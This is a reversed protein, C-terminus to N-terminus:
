WSVRETAPESQPPTDALSDHARASMATVIRAAIISILYTSALSALLGLYDLELKVLPGFLLLPLFLLRPDTQPDGARGDVMKVIGGLIMMGVIVVSLGGHRWLDGYPTMASSTRVSSPLGYYITSMQYGADLVPKERWISRPTVGLVPGAALDTAPLYPVRSPTNQMIVALDGVRTLRNSATEASDGSPANLASTFIEGFDVTTLARIPSIRGSGQLIDDRYQTVFPFVFTVVFVLALLAPVIRMRRWMGWGLLAAILQIIVMEKLASFLGLGVQSGAVTALLVFAAGTRSKGYRWGALLTAFTGLAAVTALIANVSSTETLAANPDMLYGFSGNRIQFITAAMSIGWLVLVAVASPQAPAPGRLGRDVHDFGERLPRPVVAYGLLLSLLGATAVMGAPVLFTTDVVTDVGTSPPTRWVLTALGFVVSFGIATWPGLQLRYLSTRLTAPRAMLAAVVIGLLFLMGALWTAKLTLALGPDILWLVTAVALWMVLLGSPGISFGRSSEWAQSADVLPDRQRPSVSSM